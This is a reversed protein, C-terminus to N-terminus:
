RERRHRRQCRSSRCRVSRGRTTRFSQDPRRPTSRVPVPQFWALAGDGSLRTSWRADRGRGTVNHEGSNLDDPERQPELHPADPRGGQVLREERATWGHRAAARVLQWAAEKERGSRAAWAKALDPELDDWRRQPPYELRSGYGFAM